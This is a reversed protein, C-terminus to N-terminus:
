QVGRTLPGQGSLTFTLGQPGEQPGTQKWGKVKANGSFKKRGTATGNPRLEIPIITNAIEADYLSEQIPDGDNYLATVDIVWKKTTNMTEGWEGSDHDSADVENADVTMDYNQINPIKSTSTWIEGKIGALKAM